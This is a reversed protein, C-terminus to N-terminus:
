CRTSGASGTTASWDWDTGAPVTKETLAAPRCSRARFWRRRPSPARAKAGLLARDTTARPAARDPRLAAIRALNILGRHVVGGRYALSCRGGGVFLFIREDEQVADAPLKM